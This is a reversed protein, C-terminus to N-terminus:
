MSFTTKPKDQEQVVAQKEEEKKASAQAIFSVGALSPATVKVETILKRLEGVEVGFKPQNAFLSIEDIQTKMAEPSFDGYERKKSEYSALFRKAFDSIQKRNLDATNLANLEELMAVESTVSISKEPSNQYIDIFHSLGDKLTSFWKLTSRQSNTHRLLFDKEDNPLRARRLINQYLSEDINSLDCIEILVFCLSAFSEISSNLIRTQKFIDALVTALKERESAFSQQELDAIIKEKALSIGLKSSDKEFQKWISDKAYEPSKKYDNVAANYARRGSIIKKLLEAVEKCTPYSSFQIYFNIMAQLALNDKDTQDDKDDSSASFFMDRSSSAAPRSLARVYCQRYNEVTLRM